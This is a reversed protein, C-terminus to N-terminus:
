SKEECYNNLFSKKQLILKLVLLPIKYYLRIAPNRKNQHKFDGSNPGDFTNM